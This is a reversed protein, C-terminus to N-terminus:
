LKMGCNCWKAPVMQKESLQYQLTSRVFQAQNEMGRPFSIGEHVINVFINKIKYM